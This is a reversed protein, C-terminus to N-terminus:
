QWTRGGNLSKRTEMNGSADVRALLTVVGNRATLRPRSLGILNVIAAGSTEDRHFRRIEVGTLGKSALIRAGDPMLVVGITGKADIVASASTWGIFGDSNTVRVYVTNEGDDLDDLQFSAVDGNPTATVHKWAGSSKYYADWATATYVPKKPFGGGVFAFASTWVNQLDLSNYLYYGDSKDASLVGESNLYANSNPVAALILILGEAQTQTVGAGTTATVTRTATAGYPLNVFYTPSLMRIGAVGSHYGSIQRFGVNSGRLGAGNSSLVVSPNQLDFAVGEYEVGLDGGGGNQWYYVGEEYSRDGIKQGPTSNTIYSFNYNYFRGYSDVIGNEINQDSMYGQVVVTGSLEGINNGNADKFTVNFNVTLATELYGYGNPGYAVVATLDLLFAQSIYAPLENGNEDQPVGAPTAFPSASNTPNLSITDLIAENYINQFRYRAPPFRNPLM